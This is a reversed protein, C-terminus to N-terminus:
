DDIHESFIPIPVPFDVQHYWSGSFRSKRFSRGQLQRFGSKQPAVTDSRNIQSRVPHSPPIMMKSGGLTPKAQAYFLERLAQRRRLLQTFCEGDRLEFRSLESERAKKSM